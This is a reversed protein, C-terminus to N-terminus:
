NNDKENFLLGNTYCTLADVMRVYYTDNNTNNGNLTSVSLDNLGM